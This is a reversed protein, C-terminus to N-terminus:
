DIAGHNEVSSPRSKNTPLQSPRASVPEQSNIHNRISESPRIVVTNLTGILCTPYFFSFILPELDSLRHLLADPRRRHSIQKMPLTPASKPTTASLRESTSLLSKYTLLKNNSTASASFFYNFSEVMDLPDVLYTHFYLISSIKTAPQPNRKALRFLVEFKNTLLPMSNRSFSLATLTDNTLACVTAEQIKCLKPQMDNFKNQKLDATLCKKPYNPRSLKGFHRMAPRNSAPPSNTLFYSGRNQAQALSSLAKSCATFFGIVIHKCKPSIRSQSLPFVSSHDCRPLNNRVTIAVKALRLCFILNPTSNHRTLTTAHQTWGGLRVANLFPPRIRPCVNRYYQLWWLFGWVATRRKNRQSVTPGEAMADKNYEHLLVMWQM